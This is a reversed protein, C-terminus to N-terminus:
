PEWSLGGGAPQGRRARDLQGSPETGAPRVTPTWRSVALRARAAVSGDCPNRRGACPDHGSCMEPVRLHADDPSAVRRPRQADTGRTPYRHRAGRGTRMDRRARELCSDGHRGGTTVSPRRLRAATAEKARASGSCRGHRRRKACASADGAGAEVAGARRHGDFTGHREVRGHGLVGDIGHQRREGLLTGVDRHLDEPRGVPSSSARM